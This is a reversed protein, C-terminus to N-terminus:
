ESFNLRFGPNEETLVHICVAPHAYRQMARKVTFHLHMPDNQKQPLHYIAVKRPNIIENIVAQGEPNHYFIPNVFVAEIPVDKVAREFYEGVHDADGTFLLNMGNISVLFCDNRVDQFQPGMHRAGIATIQLGPEPQFKRVEGAELGLPWYPIGQERLHSYLHRLAPTGEEEDPLFIGKVPRHRVQDLVLEPTFHDPHEHTFLLYDIGSYPEEGLKMCELINEPVKIFPHGDAHHIGDLLLGVGHARVLVGANAVLIIDICDEV